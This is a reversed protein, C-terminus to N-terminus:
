GFFIELRLIPHHPQHPVVQDDGAAGAGDVGRPLEDHRAAHVHVHVQLSRSVAGLGDVVEVLYRVSKNMM